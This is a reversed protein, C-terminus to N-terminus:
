RGYIKVTSSSLINNGAFYYSACKIRNQSGELICSVSQTTIAGGGSATIIKSNKDLTEALITINAQRTTGSLPAEVVVHLENYNKYDALIENSGNATGILKWKLADSLNTNINNFEDAVRQELDSMNAASFADGEQSVTGENRVVDVIMEEGTSVNTLKRRGAFEVLRDKWEKPVFAM